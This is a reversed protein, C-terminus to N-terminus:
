RREQLEVVLRQTRFKWGIDNFVAHAHEFCERARIHEGAGRWAIGEHVAVDAELHPLTHEAFYQRAQALVDTARRWQKLGALARGIDRKVGAIMWHSYSPVEPKREVADHLLDQHVLLADQHRGRLQLAIGFAGRADIQVRWFDLGRSLENAQTAHSLAARFDGSSSLAAGLHHHSTAKGLLDGAATAAALAERQSAIALDSHGLCTDQSWGLKNLLSVLKRPEDLARASHVGLEFVETWPLKWPRVTAYFAIGEALETVSHHEGNEASQRLAALWNPAERELWDSAAKQSAFRSQISRTEPSFEQAASTTNRVLHGRTARLVQLRQATREEFELKERAFLRVLDYFRYRDLNSDFNIMSADTLESLHTHMEEPSTMGAVHALEIDFDPGPIASLRRFATQAPPSLHRYSVEFASRLELDGAALMDIRAQENRMREVLHSISWGPRTALRNGAIRVALPLYGCLAVLETALGAEAEVRDAGVVGSLLSLAGPEDLPGLWLWHTAELGALMHRCTVVTSVGSGLSTLPRIHSENAVNDLVILARRGELILQLLAIKEEERCPIDPPQIDLARLMENLAERHTKPQDNLGGMDLSFRGDPFEDALRWAAAIALTTKGSGPCGAIAINSGPLLMNGIEQLEKSRSVFDRILPTLTDAARGASSRSSRRRSDRAITLFIKRDSGSLALAGALVEASRAQAAQAHGNELDRLARASMGSLKSLEAQSLGAAGRHLKLLRGFASSIPSRNETV